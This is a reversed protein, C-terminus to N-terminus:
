RVEEYNRGSSGTLIFKVRTTEILKHVTDLLRPVKQIEDIVIWEINSSLAAIRNTLESPDRNFIDEEFSDLLDYYLHWAKKERNYLKEVNNEEVTLDKMANLYSYLTSKVMGLKEAFDDPTGTARLRILQDIRQFRRLYNTLAM